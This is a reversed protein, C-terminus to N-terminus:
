ESISDIGLSKYQSFDIEYTGGEGDEFEITDGDALAEYVDNYDEWSRIPVIDIDLGALSESGGEFDLLLMPHTRDDEQATGLLGTKGAGAPAFVLGKIYRNESPKRVEM